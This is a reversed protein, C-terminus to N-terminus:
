DSVCLKFISEAFELRGRSIECPINSWHQGEVKNHQIEELCKQEITKLILEHTTQIHM